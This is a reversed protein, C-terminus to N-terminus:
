QGSSLRATVWHQSIQGLLDTRIHNDRIDIRIQELQTPMWHSALADGNANNELLTQMNGVIGGSATGIGELAGFFYEFTPQPNALRGILDVDGTSFSPAAASLFMTLPDGRTIYVLYDLVAAELARRVDPWVEPSMHLLKVQRRAYTTQTAGLACFALVANATIIAGQSHGALILPRNEVMGQHLLAIVAITTPNTVEPLPRHHNLAEM